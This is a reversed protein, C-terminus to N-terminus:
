HAHEHGPEVEDDDDDDVHAPRAPRPRGALEGLLAITESGVELVAHGDLRAYAGRDTPAGLELTLPGGRALGLEVRMSPADFGHPARAEASLYARARQDLLDHVLERVRDSDVPQSSSWVGATLTLVRAEAGARADIRTVESPQHGSWLELSRFRGQSPLLRDFVSGPLEVLLPEEGRRVPLTGEATLEGLAIRESPRTKSGSADILELLLSGREVFGSPGLPAFKSARAAALDALWAEVAERDIPGAQEVAAGGQAKWSEGDRVLALKDTGRTLVFREISHVDTSFLRPERLSDAGVEFPELESDAVCAFTASAASLQARAYREGPHDACPGALELVFSRPKQDERAEPPAVAVEVHLSPTRFSPAVKAQTAPDLYRAARLESLAHLLEDIRKGDAYSRPAEDTFWRAQERSLEKQAEDQRLSIRQAWAVTLEPLLQKDRYDGPEQDLVEAITRPVVYARPEDDVRVYVADGHVDTNGVALTHTAGGVTFGVRVRPATLGFRQQDERSIADLTRRASMWELEGLLQDVVDDDAKAVFPERVQFSSPAGDALKNRTLLVRTGKRQISLQEVKDRVFQTLVRGSRGSLESSTVSSREFVVIYGALALALLALVVIARKSM